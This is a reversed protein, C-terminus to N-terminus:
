PGTVESPRGENYPQKKGLKFDPIGHDWQFADKSTM